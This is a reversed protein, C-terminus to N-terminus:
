RDSRAVMHEQEFVEQADVFDIGHKELNRARKQIDWEFDMSETYVHQIYSELYALNGIVAVAHAM